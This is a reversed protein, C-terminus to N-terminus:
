SVFRSTPFRAGPRNRSPKPTTMTAASLRSARRERSATAPSSPEFGLEAHMRRVERSTDGGRWNGRAAAVVHRVGRSPSPRPDGSVRDAVRAVDLRAGRGLAEDGRRRRVGCASHDDGSGARRVCLCQRWSRRGTSAGGRTVVGLSDEVVRRDGWRVSTRTRRVSDIAERHIQVIPRCITRPSETTASHRPQHKATRM